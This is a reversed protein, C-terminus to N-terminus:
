PYPPQWFLQFLKPSIGSKEIQPTVPGRWAHGPADLIRMLDPARQVYLRQFIDVTSSLGRGWAPAAPRPSTYTFCDVRPSIFCHFQIFSFSFLFHFSFHIKECIGFIELIKRINRDSKRLIELYKDNGSCKQSFVTFKWWIKPSFIAFKQYNWRFVRLFQFKTTTKKWEPLIQVIKQQFKSIQATCLFAFRTSRSFHLLILRQDSDYSDICGLVLREFNSPSKM